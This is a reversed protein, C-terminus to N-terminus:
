YSVYRALRILSLRLEDLLEGLWAQKLSYDHFGVWGVVRWFVKVPEDHHRPFVAGGKVGNFILKAEGFVLGNLEHPLNLVGFGEFTPAFANSAAAGFVM